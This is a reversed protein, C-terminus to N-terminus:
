GTAPAAAAVQRAHAGPAFRKKLRLAPQEVLRWSLATLAATLALELPIRAAQGHVRDGVLEFVPLHWLYLGYSVRGLVVAPRWEFIARLRPTADGVLALILVAVLLSYLTYGGRYLFGENWAVRASMAALGALSLVALAPFFRGLRDPRVRGSAVLLALACGALLADARSDAGTFLRILTPDGGWALGRYVASAVLGAGALGLALGHGRLRVAALLVVPWVIYFQEEVSLSWTHPLTLSPGWDFARYWNNVYFLAALGERQFVHFRAHPGFAALYALLLGLMALLAPLLRLARRVYFDRLGVRGLRGLEDVLLFTILFGSLVFFMEVGLFGGRTVPSHIGLHFLVVLAIALGRLGDLAPRNGLVFRPAAAM